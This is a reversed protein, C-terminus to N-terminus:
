RPVNGARRRNRTPCFNVVPVALRPQILAGEVRLAIALRQVQISGRQGRAIRPLLCLNRNGGKDALFRSVFARRSEFDRRLKVTLHPQSKRQPWCRRKRMAQRHRLQCQRFDLLLQRSGVVQWRGVTSRHEALHQLWQRRRGCVARGDPIGAPNFDYRCAARGGLPRQRNSAARQVASLERFGRRDVHRYPEM